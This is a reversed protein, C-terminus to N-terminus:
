ICDTHEYVHVHAESAGSNNSSNVEYGAYLIEYTM